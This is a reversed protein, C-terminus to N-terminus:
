GAEARPAILESLHLNQADIVNPPIWTV